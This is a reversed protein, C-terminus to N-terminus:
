KVSQWRGEKLNMKFNDKRRCRVNETVAKPRIHNSEWWVLVASEEWAMGIENENIQLNLYYTYTYKGAVAWVCFFYKMTLVNGDFLLECISDEFNYFSSLREWVGESVGQLFYTVLNKVLLSHSPYVFNSPLIVGRVMLVNFDHRVRNRVDSERRMRLDPERRVRRRLASERRVRCRLASECRVRSRLDSERRVRRRLSSDRRVRSGLDSEHRM